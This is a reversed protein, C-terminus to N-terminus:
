RSKHQPAVLSRCPSSRTKYDSGWQRHGASDIHFRTGAYIGLGMNLSQGKDLYLRCLKEIMEKRSLYQKPKMDIAYFRLHFSKSAGKICKNISPSRLVSIAEVEGIVPVIENKILKLTPVMHPWLKRPPVNFPEAHCKHWLVDSRLLQHLPMVDSVGHTKLFINFAEAKAANQDKTKWLGYDRFSPPNPSINCATQLACLALLIIIQKLVYPSRM